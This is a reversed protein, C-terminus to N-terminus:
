ETRENQYFTLLISAIQAMKERLDQPELIEM